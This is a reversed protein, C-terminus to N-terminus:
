IKFEDNYEYMNIKMLEVENGNELLKKKKKENIDVAISLNIIVERILKLLEFTLNNFETECIYYALEDNLCSETNLLDDTIKLYKHELHNRIESIKKAKPNPSEYVRYYFDKHIWYIAKMAFNDNKNLVNRYDYGNRGGKRSYWISKFNVDREEIGLDFYYNIFFAVKDLLSYLIRYATKMKESRISYICYDLTDILKTDKDAYCIEENCYLSEYYLYRSYIYEQKIQNYLGFISNIKNMQNDSIIFSIHIDDNAFKYYEIPLDNITNLFLNEKLAWEKYKKEDTEYIETDKVKLEKELFDNKYMETYTNLYQNMCTKFQENIPDEINIAKKLLAYAFHNFCHQHEENYDINAYHYYAIGLNGVAMMFNPNINLAKNYYEIALIKRGINELCNAYNTYLNLKFGLIYPNNIEELNILEILNISERFYFLQKEITEENQFQEDLLPLNGYATGLSYYIKSKSINNFNEIESKMQNIITIMQEHNKEDFALDLEKDFEFIKENFPNKEVSM